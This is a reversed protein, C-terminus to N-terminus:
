EGARGRGACSPRLTRQASREARSPEDARGPARRSGRGAVGERAGAKGAESAAERGGERGEQRAGTSDAQRGAARPEASGAAVIGAARGGAAPSPPTGSSRARSRPVGAAVRAPPLRRAPHPPPPPLTATLAPHPHPPQPRPQGPGRARAGGAPIPLPTVAWMRPGPSRTGEARPRLPPPSPDSPSRRPAGRGRGRPQDGKAAGLSGGQLPHSRVGSERARRPQVRPQRWPIRVREPILLSPASGSQLQPSSELLAGSHPHPPPVADSGGM